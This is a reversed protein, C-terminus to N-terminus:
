GDIEANPRQNICDAGYNQDESEPDIIVDAIPLQDVRLAPADNEVANAAVLEITSWLPGFDAFAGPAPELVGTEAKLCDSLGISKGHRIGTDKGIPQNKMGEDKERVSGHV